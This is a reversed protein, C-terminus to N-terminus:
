FNFQLGAQFTRPQPTSGRDTGAGTQFAAQGFSMVEPDLGTYDTIVFLNSAAIYFRASRFVKTKSLLDQPLSYGLQVNRLRFFGADEIWRSSFRNNRAPDGEIARPMTNSTGEGKWRNQTSALQNRGVGGLGERDQRLVNYAQIGAVGQFLVSLDFNRYDSNITLGYFFDPITKGLYTRDASTIKGDPVGSFMKGDPDGLLPSNNDEFIVDGARPKNNGTAMDDPLAGAATAANQYIGLMKYGYFYGIPFGVATRYGGTESFQEVGAALSVLRNKITTLNGSVSVNFDKGISTNYGLEFEFGTNKVNGINVDSGLYGSVSAVPLGYLFDKTNRIYYTALFNVRNNFLTADIGFDSSEVTEWGINPNPFSGYPVAAAPTPVGNLPYQPTFGVRSLYAFSSTNANGLEGWSGRLKLDSIVPINQLFPEESIRWAASVAPFTGWRNQPSFRSTGDRRVTATLLYKEKFNYSLRGFYSAYAENYAGAGANAFVGGTGRGNSVVRYFGPDTSSFNVGGYGLNNGRIKQYEIGGLVNFHHEQIAKEYSLTNTFVQTYGQNRSDSFNNADRAYGIEAANFAPQWRTSRGFGLDISAASRFRLGTILELEAYLGGLLRYDHVQDDVIENLAFQNGATIGAVNLNGHYGYRNGPITNGDDYIKFFPPMGVNNAYYFGDGGGNMGRNTEQFSLALTQGIKFRSGIKYDSNARVTYRELDWGRTIAEQNFYGISFFYNANETGGSVGVNYNAIPANKNISAEEWDTNIGLVSTPSGAVLDPHLVRFGPQGATLNDQVNRNTIAEQALEVFQQTNNVVLNKRFQQIGRYADLTVRPKGTKGRKTTILVVGNAARMGYIAASSADKLVSINEIDSPNLSALPNTNRGGNVPDGGSGNGVPIGDIVFLPQTNGVTGVGRVRVAVQAGPTGDVNTIQVGSVRGQIAADASAVPLKQIEKATVTGISETLMRRDKQGYGIVVVESLARNDAVFSVNVTAGTITVERSTYGQSTFVLVNGQAANIQFYGREDSVTGRDTGKVMVSVGPVGEKTTNDVIRGSITTQALLTQGCFIFLIFTLLHKYWFSTTTIEKSM